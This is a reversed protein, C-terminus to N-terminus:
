FIFYLFLIKKKDIFEYIYVKAKLILDLWTESLFLPIGSPPIVIIKGEMNGDMSGNMKGEMKGDKMGDMKGEMKGDMKGEM